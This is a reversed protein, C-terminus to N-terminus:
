SKKKYGAKIDGRMNDWKDGYGKKDSRWGPYANDMAHATIAELDKQKRLPMSKKIEDSQKRNYTIDDEETQAKTTYTFKPPRNMDVLGLTALEKQLTASVSDTKKFAVEIAPSYWPHASKAAAVAAKGAISDKYTPVDEDLKRGLHEGAENVVWPPKLKIPIGFDDTETEVVPTYRMAEQPQESPWGQERLLRHHEADRGAFNYLTDFPEVTAKKIDSNEMFDMFSNFFDVEGDSKIMLTMPTRREELTVPTEDEPSFLDCYMGEEIEGMVINCSDDNGNFYKCGGCMIGNSEEVDTAIRYQAQDKNIKGPQDPNEDEKELHVLCSGDSCSKTAANHAKLIDFGAGQNVGKECVTIEALEMEDVQMYPVMGKQMSQTKTASGAISYSKLKGEHIQDVVRKAIRTDDRIETIFFLGKDDVGSKFIQGGKSIYAPLAWGVQVDSHLVMTNRTRFNDMYNSFAKTLAETTILHGERDVLEVSAPGGVVIPEEEGLKSAAKRFTVDDPYARQLTIIEAKSAIGAKFLRKYEDLADSIDDRTTRGSQKELFTIESDDAVFQYLPANWHSPHPITGISTKITSANATVM